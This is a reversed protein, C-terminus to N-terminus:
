PPQPLTGLIEQHGMFSDGGEHQLAAKGYVAVKSPQMVGADFGLSNILGLKELVPLRLNPLHQLIHGCTNAGIDLPRVQPVDDMAGVGFGDLVVVVFKGM